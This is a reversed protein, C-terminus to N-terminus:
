PTAAVVAPAPWWLGLLTKGDLLCPDTCTTVVKQSADSSISVTNVDVVGATATDTKVDGTKDSRMLATPVRGAAAVPNTTLKSEWSIEGFWESTGYSGTYTVYIEPWDADNTLLTIEMAQVHAVTAPDGLSGRHVATVAFAATTKFAIIEPQSQTTPPEYRQLAALLPPATDTFEISLACTYGSADQRVAIGGVAMTRRTGGAAVLTPKPTWEVHGGYLNTAIAEVLSARTAGFEVRPDVAAEAGAAALFVIASTLITLRRM